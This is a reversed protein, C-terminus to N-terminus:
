GDTGSPVARSRSVGIAVGGRPRSRRARPRWDRVLHRALRHRDRQAPTKTVPVSVPTPLVTTAHASTRPRRARPISTPAIFGISVPTRGPPGRVRDRQAVAAPRARDAPRRTGAPTESGARERDRRAVRPGATSRARLRRRRVRPQHARALEQHDLPRAAQEHRDGRLERHGIQACRDAQGQEDDRAGREARDVCV